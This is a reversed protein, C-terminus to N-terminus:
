IAMPSIFSEAIYSHNQGKATEEVPTECLCVTLALYNRTELLSAYIAGTIISQVHLQDYLLVLWNFHQLNTPNKFHFIYFCINQQLVFV